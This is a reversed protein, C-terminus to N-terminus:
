KLDVKGALKDLEKVKVTGLPVNNGGPREFVKFGDIFLFAADDANVFFRYTGDKKVTFHGRYAAAFRKPDNPRAPNCNQVVETVVANALVKESKELGARVKTWDSLDQGAWERVELVIGEHFAVDAKADAKPGPPAKPNAGYVWYWPDNGSRKFQVITEGAPEHSRIVAPLLQGNAAQVVLDSADPKLWGGTPLSVLASQAVQKSPEGLVRVPWRLLYGEVWPPAPPLPHVVNVQAPQAAARGALALLLCVTIRRSLPM